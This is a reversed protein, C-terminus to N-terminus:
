LLAEDIAHAFDEVSGYRRSPERETAKLFIPNWKPPLGSEQRDPPPLTRTQLAWLLIGLAYVDVREDVRKLNLYQEPAAYYPTGM